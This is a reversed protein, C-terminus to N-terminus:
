DACIDAVQADTVAVLDASRMRLSQEHTGAELVVSGADRVRDDVLVPDGKAGGVPPVAGLEFEPYAGALTAESALDVHDVGLVTRVKGLSIRDSALLVARVFGDPTALILTKAVQGPDVGVARAEEVASLTRRHPIVEFSVHEAALLDTLASTSSKM